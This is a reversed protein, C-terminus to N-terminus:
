YVYAEIGGLTTVTTGDTLRIFVGLTGKVTYASEPLVVWAQNGSKSGSVTLTEGDARIINASVDGTLTVAEGNEYVKVGIKNAGSDAHFVVGSLRKVIQLRKLDAEIWYEFM